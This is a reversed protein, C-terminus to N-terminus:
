KRCKKYLKSVQFDKKDAFFRIKAYEFEIEKEIDEATESFIEIAQEHIKRQTLIKRGTQTRTKISQNSIIDLFLQIVNQTEPDIQM